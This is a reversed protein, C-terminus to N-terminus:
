GFNEGLGGKGGGGAGRVRARLENYVRLVLAYPHDKMAHHVEDFILLDLEQLAQFMSM